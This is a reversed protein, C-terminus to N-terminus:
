ALFFILVARGPDCQSRDHADDRVSGVGLHTLTSGLVRFRLFQPPSLPLTVLFFFFFQRSFDPTPLTPHNCETRERAEGGCRGMEGIGVVSWRKRRRILLGSICFRAPRCIALPFKKQAPPSTVPPSSGPLASRALPISLKPPPTRDTASNCSLHSPFFSVFRTIGVAKRKGPKVPKRSRPASKM